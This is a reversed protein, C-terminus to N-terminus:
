YIVQWVVPAGGNAREAEFAHAQADVEAKALLAARGDPDQRAWVSGGGCAGSERLCLCLQLPTPRFPPM